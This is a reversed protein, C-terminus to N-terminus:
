IKNVGDASTRYPERRAASLRGFLTKIPDLHFECLNVVNNLRAECTKVADKANKAFDLTPCNDNHLWKTSIAIPDLTHNNYNWEDNTEWEKYAPGFRAKKDKLVQCFRYM